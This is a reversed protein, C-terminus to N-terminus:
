TAMSLFVTAKEVAESLGDRHAAVQEQSLGAAAHLAEANLLRPDAGLDSAPPEVMNALYDALAVMAAAKDLRTTASTAPRRQEHHGGICAVLLEPFRWSTAFAAGVEVHDFGFAEHELAKLQRRSRQRQHVVQDYAEPAYLELIFKGLDHLLGGAFIEEPDPNGGLRALEKAMAGTTVSHRWLERYDLRGGARAVASVVSTAVTLSIAVNRTTEYGLVSISRVVDSIDSRTSYFPSNALRLIKASLPADLRVVGALDSAGSDPDDIVRLVEILTEPISPLEDIEAVMRELEPRISTEQAAAM